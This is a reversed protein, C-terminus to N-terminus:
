RSARQPRMRNLRMRWILLIFGRRQLMSAESLELDISRGTATSTTRGRRGLDDATKLLLRKVDAPQLRPEVELLIASAGSVQPVAM